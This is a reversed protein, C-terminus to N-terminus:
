CICVAKYHRKCCFVAFVLTVSEHYSVQALLYFGTSQGISKTVFLRKPANTVRQYHPPGAVREEAGGVKIHGAQGFAELGAKLRDAELWRFVLNEGGEEGPPPGSGDGDGALNRFPGLAVDPRRHSIQLHPDPHPFM